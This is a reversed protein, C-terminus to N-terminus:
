GADPRGGVVTPADAAGDEPPFPGTYDMEKPPGISLSTIATAGPNTLRLKARNRSSGGYKMELTRQIDILDTADAGPMGGPVGAPANALTAHAALAGRDFADALQQSDTATHVTPLLDPIRCGEAVEPFSDDRFRLHLVGALPDYWEGDFVATPPLGDRVEVAKKVGTTLMHALIDASVRVIKWRRM